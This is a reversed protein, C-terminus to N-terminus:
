KAVKTKQNKLLKVAGSVYTNGADFREGPGYGEPLSRDKVQIISVKVNYKQEHGTGPKAGEDKMLALRYSTTDAPVIETVHEKMDSPVNGVVADAEVRYYLNSYNGVAKPLTFKFLMDIDTAKELKVAPAPIRVKEPETINVLFDNGYQVSNDNRDVFRIKVTDTNLVTGGDGTTFTDVKLVPNGKTDQTIQALNGPECILKLRSTDANKNLTIAYNVATGAAQVAVADNTNKVTKFGKVSLKTIEQAVNFTLTQTGFDGALVISVNKGLTSVKKADISISKKDHSLTAFASDIKAPKLTLSSIEFAGGEMTDMYVGLEATDDSKLRVSAKNAVAGYEESDGTKMYMILKVTTVSVRIDKGAATAENVTDAPIDYVNLATPALVAPGGPMGEYDYRFEKIARGAAPKFKLKVATNATKNKKLGTYSVTATPASPANGDVLTNVGVGPLGGSTVTVNKSKDCNLYYIGDADPVLVSGDSVKICMYGTRPVAKFKLVKGQRVGMKGSNLNLSVGKDDLLSIQAANYKFSLQIESPYSFVLSKGSTKLTMTEDDPLGANAAENIKTLDYIKDFTAATASGNNYYKLSGENVAIVDNQRFKVETGNENVARVVMLRPSYKVGAAYYEEDHGNGVRGLINNGKYIVKGKCIGDANKVIDYDGLDVAPCANLTLDGNLVLKDMVWLHLKSISVNSIKTGNKGYIFCRDEGTNILGRISVDKISDVDIDWIANRGYGMSFTINGNRIEKLYIDGDNRLNLTHGNLDLSVNQKSFYDATFRFVGTDMEVRQDSGLKILYEAGPHAAIDNQILEHLEELDISCFIEEGDRFVNTYDTKDDAYGKIYNWYNYKFKTTTFRDQLEAHKFEKYSKLYSGASCDIFWWSGDDRKVINYTHNNADVGMLVRAPVGMERALRCFAQAYAECTGQHGSTCLASYATHVIPRTRDGSASKVTKTVYDYIVKIKQDNTGNKVNQFSSTALIEEVKQDLEDEQAKTTIVPLYVEYLKYYSGGSEIWTQVDPDDPSQPDEYYFRSNISDGILNYMYDGEYPKIGLREEEFDCVDILSIPYVDFLDEKVYIRDYVFNNYTRDPNTIKANYYDMKNVRNRIINRVAEYADAKTNCYVTPEATEAPVKESGATVEAAELTVEESIDEVTEPVIELESGQISGIEGAWVAMGTEPMILAVAFLMVLLRKFVWKIKM